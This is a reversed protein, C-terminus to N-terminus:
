HTLVQDRPTRKATVNRVITLDPLLAATGTLADGAVVYAWVARVKGQDFECTWRREDQRYTFYLDYTRLLTGDVVRAAKLGVTAPETPVDVFNYVITEDHCFENGEVKACVSTGRWLGLIEAKPAVAAATAPATAPSTVGTAFALLVAVGGILGAGFRTLAKAEATCKRVFAMVRQGKARNRPRDLGASRKYLVFRDPVRGDPSGRMQMLQSELREDFSKM